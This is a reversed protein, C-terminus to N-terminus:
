AFVMEDRIHRKMHWQVCPGPPPSFCIDGSKLDLFVRSLSTKIPGDLCITPLALHQPYVITSGLPLFARAIEIFLHPFTSAIEQNSATVLHRYDASDHDLMLGIRSGLNPDKRILNSTHIRSLLSPLKDPHLCPLTALQPEPAPTDEPGHPLPDNSNM